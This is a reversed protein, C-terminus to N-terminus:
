TGLLTASRSYLEFYVDDVGGDNVVKSANSKSEQIVNIEYDAGSVIAKYAATADATTSAGSVATVTKGNQPDVPIKNVYTCVDVTLWNGSGCVTETSGTTSVAGGSHGLENEAPTASAVAVNDNILQIMLGELSAADKIRGADRSKRQAEAPNLSVMLTVALIGIIGIVILLEVLTFAKESFKKM